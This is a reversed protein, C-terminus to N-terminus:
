ANKQRGSAAKLRKEKPAPNVVLKGGKPPPPAAAIIRLKAKFAAEDEDCGLERAKEIFRKSQEAHGDKRNKERM